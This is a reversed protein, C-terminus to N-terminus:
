RTRVSATEEGVLNSIVTITGPSSNVPKVKLEYRNKKNKWTMQDYGVVTLTIDPQGSSTAYVKLEKKRKRWEARTVNISDGFDVVFLGETQHSAYIRNGEVVIDANGSWQTQPIQPDPDFCGVHTMQNPNRIDLIQIGDELHAVFAFDNTTRVTSCLSAGKGRSHFRSIGFSISVM